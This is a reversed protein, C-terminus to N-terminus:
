CLNVIPQAKPKTTEQHIHKKYPQNNGSLIRLVNHGANNQVHTCSFNPSKSVDRYLFIIIFVM